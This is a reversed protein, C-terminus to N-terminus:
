RGGRVYPVVPGTLQFRFILEGAHRYIAEPSADPNTKKVAHVDSGTGWGGHARAGRGGLYRM